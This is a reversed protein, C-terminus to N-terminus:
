ERGEDIAARIEELTVGAGRKLIEASLRELGDLAEGVMARDICAEQQPADSNTSDSTKM